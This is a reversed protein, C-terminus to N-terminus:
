KLVENGIENVKSLLNDVKLYHGTFEEKDTQVIMLLSFLKVTAAIQYALGCIRFYEDRRKIEDNLVFMQQHAGAGGHVFSSLESYERILSGFFKTENESGQDIEKLTKIIKKYTFKLTEQEIEKKSYKKLSPIEEFIKQWSKVEVDPDSLKQEAIVSKIYDLKERAETFELYKESISDNKLKMWNFLVYKFRLYHEILSRFLIKIGYLNDTESCDFISNKIFTTSTTLLNSIHFTKPYKRSFNSNITKPFYEQFEAFILDDLDRIKEIRDM